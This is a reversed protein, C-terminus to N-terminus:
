DQRGLVALQNFSGLFREYQLMCLGAGRAADEIRRQCLLPAHEDEAEPSCVGVLAGWDLVREGSPHPTTLVIRGHPKLCGGLRALVGDPDTFHELVALMVIVDFCGLSGLDDCSVDLNQFDHQPFRERNSAIVPGLVDVGVYREPAIHDLLPSRGCGVDLVELGDDLYGLAKEVRRRELWPSLLGTMQGPDDGSDSGFAM